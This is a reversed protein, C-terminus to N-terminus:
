SKLLWMPSSPLLWQKYAHSSYSAWMGLKGAKFLNIMWQVCAQPNNIVFDVSPFDKGYGIHYWDNIQVIGYDSSWVVGASDRNQNPRPNVLFRSEQFVCASIINKEDVTLGSLDCLVRVNHYANKPISWDSRMTDIDPAPQPQIPAMVIEPPIEDENDDEYYDARKFIQTWVEVVFEWLSQMM